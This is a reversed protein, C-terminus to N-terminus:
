IHIIYFYVNINEYEVISKNIIRSPIIMNEHDESTHIFWTLVL